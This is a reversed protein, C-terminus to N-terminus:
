QQASLRGNEQSRQQSSRRGHAQVSTLSLTSAQRSLGNSKFREIKHLNPSYHFIKVGSSQKGGPTTTSNRVSLFHCSTSCKRVTDNESVFEVVSSFVPNQDSFSDDVGKLRQGENFVVRIVAYDDQRLELHVEGFRKCFAEILCFLSIILECKLATEKSTARMELDEHVMDGIEESVEQSLSAKQM